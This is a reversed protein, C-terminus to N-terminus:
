LDQEYLVVLQHEFAHGAAEVANALSYTILLRESFATSYSSLGFAQSQWCSSHVLLCVEM